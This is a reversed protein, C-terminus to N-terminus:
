KGPQQDTATPIGNANLWVVEERLAEERTDFPGLVPGRVPLMDAWWKDAPLQDRSVETMLFASEHGNAIMWNIAELSIESTPEVHSARRTETAGLQKLVAAAEPSHIARPGGSLPISIRIQKGAM